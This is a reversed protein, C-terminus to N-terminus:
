IKLKKATSRLMISDFQDSFQNCFDFTFHSYKPFIIGGASNNQLDISTTQEITSLKRSISTCNSAAVLILIFADTRLVVMFYRSQSFVLLFQPFRHRSLGLKWLKNKMCAIITVNLIPTRGFPMSNHTSCIKSLTKTQSTRGSTLKFYYIREISHSLFIKTQVKSRRKSFKAFFLGRTIM